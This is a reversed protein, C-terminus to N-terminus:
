AKCMEALMREEELQRICFTTEPSGRGTGARMPM